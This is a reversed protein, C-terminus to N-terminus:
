EALLEEVQEMFQNLDEEDDLVPGPFLDEDDPLANRDAPPETLETDQRLAEIRERLDSIEGLAAEITRERQRIEFQALVAFVLSVGAIM